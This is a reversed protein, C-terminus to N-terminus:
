ENAVMQRAARILELQTNVKQIQEAQAKLQATLAAMGKKLEQVTQHEKLFENLLMANVADYRVTYPKGDTGYIVLDPNVASVEEAILGFQPKADKHSKYRFSVPKLALICESQANLPKIDTKYRLSSSVTGLQGASDIVAPVADNNATTTGYINAIFCSNDINAGPFRDGIVIANNATTVNFGAGEGLAVNFSGTTNHSLAEDGVATNSNGGTNSYLAEGGVATNLSGTSNHLTDYGIATNDGGDTNSLLANLGDATNRDGSTNNYLADTGNATNYTGDV